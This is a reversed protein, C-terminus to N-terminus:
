HEVPGIHKGHRAAVRRLAAALMEAARRAERTAVLLQWAGVVVLTVALGSWLLADLMQKGPFPTAAVAMCFGALLLMSIGFFRRRRIKAQMLGDDADRLADTLAGSFKVRHARIEARAVGDLFWGGGVLFVIAASGLM